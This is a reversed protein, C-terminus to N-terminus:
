LSIALQFLFKIFGIGFDLIQFGFAEALLGSCTRGDITGVIQIVGLAFRSGFLFAEPEYQPRQGDL